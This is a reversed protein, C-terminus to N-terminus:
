KSLVWFYFNNFFAYAAFPFENLISTIIIILLDCFLIVIFTYLYVDSFWGIKWNLIFFLSFVDVNLNVCLFIDKFKVFITALTMLWSEHSGQCTVKTKITQISLSSSQMERCERTNQTYRFFTLEPYLCLFIEYKKITM